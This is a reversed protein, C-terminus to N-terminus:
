DNQVEVKKLTLYGPYTEDILEIGKIMFEFCTQIDNRKFIDSKLIEIKLLGDGQVDKIESEEVGLKNILTFYFTQTLTSISSCVIKEFEGEAHGCSKFGCYYNGKKYLDIITM